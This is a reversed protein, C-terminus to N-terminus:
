GTALDVRGRTRLERDLVRRGGRTRADGARHDHLHGVIRGTADSVGLDMAGAAVAIEIAGRQLAHTAPRDVGTALVTLGNAADGVHGDVEGESRPAEM